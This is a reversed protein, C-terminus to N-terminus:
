LEPFYIGLHEKRLKAAQRPTLDGISHGLVEATGETPVDLSGVINLLTTKGSGSPGILGCFEGEEITLDVGKLATFSSKGIPFSKTLQEIKIISNSM